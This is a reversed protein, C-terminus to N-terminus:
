LGGEWFPCKPFPLEKRCGANYLSAIRAFDAAFYFRFVKGVLNVFRLKATLNKKRAGDAAFVPFYFFSKRPGAKLRRRAFFVTASAHGPCFGTV